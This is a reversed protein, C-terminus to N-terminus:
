ECILSKKISDYGCEQTGMTVPEGNVIKDLKMSYWGPKAALRILHYLSDEDRCASERVVCISEGHWDGAVADASLSPGQKAGVMPLFFITLVALVFIIVSRWNMDTRGRFAAGALALSRDAPPL